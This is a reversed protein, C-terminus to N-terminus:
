QCMQLYFGCARGFCRVERQEGQSSVASLLVNVAGKLPHVTLRYTGVIM